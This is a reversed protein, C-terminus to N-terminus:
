NRKVATLGGSENESLDVESRIFPTRQLRTRLQVGRFLFVASTGMGLREMVRKRCLSVARVGLQRTKAVRVGSMGTALLQVLDYQRHSIGSPLHWRLYHNVGALVDEPTMEASWGPGHCRGYDGRQGCFRLWSEPVAPAGGTPKILHKLEDRLLYNGTGFYRVVCLDTYYMRDMVVLVRQHNLWRQLAYFLYVHEHPRLCLILGADPDDSVGRALASVSGCIRVIGMSYQRTIAEMASCDAWM